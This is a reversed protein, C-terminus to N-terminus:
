RQSKRALKRSICEFLTRRIRRLSNTISQRSRNLKEAIEIASENERYFQNLLIRDSDPLKELCAELALEEAEAVAPAEKPLSETLKRVLKDSFKMRPTRNARLFNLAEYQAVTSSWSIFSSNERFQDFKRWLVLCTSQFIDNADDTNHVLGLIYGYLQSQHLALHRVFRTYEPSRSTTFSGINPWQAQAADRPQDNSGCAPTM